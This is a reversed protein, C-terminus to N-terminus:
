EDKWSEQSELKEARASWKEAMAVFGNNKLYYCGQRLVSADDSSLWYAHAFQASAEGSEQLEAHCIGLSFRLSALNPEVEIAAVYAEKADLYLDLEAYMDGIKEYASVRRRTESEDVMDLISGYLRIAKVYKDSNYLEQAKTLAKLLRRKRYKVLFKV